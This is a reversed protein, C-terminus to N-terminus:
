DRASAPRASGAPIASGLRDRFDALTAEAMRHFLAKDAAEGLAGLPPSYHMMVALLTTGEIYPSVVIQGEVVPFLGKPGTAHWWIPVSTKADGHQPAGVEVEVRKGIEMGGIGLRLRATLRPGDPAADPLWNGPLSELARTAVEYRVPLESFFRVFM